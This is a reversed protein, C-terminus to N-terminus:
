LISVNKNKKFLKEAQLYKKIAQKNLQNCSSSRKRIGKMHQIDANEEEPLM